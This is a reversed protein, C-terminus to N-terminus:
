FTSIEQMEWALFYLNLLPVSAGFEYFIVCLITLMVRLDCVFVFGSGNFSLRLLLVNLTSMSSSFKVIPHFFVIKFSGLLTPISTSLGQIFIRDYKM